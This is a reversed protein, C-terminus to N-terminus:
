FAAPAFREMRRGDRDIQFVRSEAPWPWSYPQPPVGYWHAVLLLRGDTAADLVQFDGAGPALDRTAAEFATDFTGDPRLKQLRAPPVRLTQATDRSRGDVVLLASGDPLSWLGGVRRQSVREEEGEANARPEALAITQR